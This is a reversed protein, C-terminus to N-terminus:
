CGVLVYLSTSSINNLPPTNNCMVGGGGTLKGFATGFAGGAILKSFVTGFAGGFSSVMVPVVVCTQTNKKACIIKKKCKPVPIDPPM